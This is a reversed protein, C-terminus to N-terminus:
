LHSVVTNLNVQKQVACRFGDFTNVSGQDITQKISEFLPPTKIKSKQTEIAANAQEILSPTDSEDDDKQDDCYTRKKLGGSFPLQLRRFNSLM